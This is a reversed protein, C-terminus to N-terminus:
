DSGIEKWKRPNLWETEAPEEVVYGRFKGDKAVEFIPRTESPTLEEIAAVTEKWMEVFERYEVDTEIDGGFGRKLVGHWSHMAAESGHHVMITEYRSDPVVYGERETTFFEAKRLGQWMRWPGPHGANGVLLQGSDDNAQIVTGDQWYALKLEPGPSRSGSRVHVLVPWDKEMVAEIEEVVKRLPAPKLQISKENEFWQVSDGTIPLVGLHWNASTLLEKDHRLFVLHKGPAFNAHACIFNEGGYLKVTKPLEGKLVQEVNAHAVESYTWGSGKTKTPEVKLIDVIAIIESSRIAGGKKNYAAKGFATFPLVFALLTIFTKM